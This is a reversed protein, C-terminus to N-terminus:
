RAILLKQCHLETGAQICLAYLGPPIESVDLFTQTQIGVIQRSLVSNGMVDIINLAVPGSYGRQLRLWVCRSAPQPYVKLPIDKKQIQSSFVIPGLHVCYDEVQGFEFTECAKPPTGNPAKYKMIIRMRVPGLVILSDPM